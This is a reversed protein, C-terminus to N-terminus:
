GLQHPLGKRCLNGSAVEDWRQHLPSGLFTPPHQEEARGFADPCLRGFHQALALWAQLDHRCERGRKTKVRVGLLSIPHKLSHAGRLWVEHHHRESAGFM